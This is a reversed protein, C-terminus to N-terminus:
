RIRRFEIKFHNPLNNRLNRVQITYKGSQNIAVNNEIDPNSTGSESTLYSNNYNLTWDVDGDDFSCYIDYVGQTLQIPTELSISNAVFEGEIINNNVRINSTTNSNTSTRLFELKFSNNNGSINHVEIRYTQSKSIHFLEKDPNSIGSESAAISNGDFLIWDVDGSDFSLVSEYTGAELYINGKLRNNRNTLRGTVVNGSIYLPDRPQVSSGIGEFVIRYNNSNNRVNNVELTYNGTNPINVNEEVDPNDTGFEYAVSNNGQKLTWDVDGSDFYCTVRYQGANLYVTHTRTSNNNDLQGSVSTGATTNPILNQVGKKFEVVFKNTNSSINTVVIKYYGNKSILVQEIDPNDVGSENAFLRSGDYLAWDVDGSDFACSVTYTGAALHISGEAQSGGIALIGTFRNGIVSSKNNILTTGTKIFQISYRTADRLRRVELTYTATQPINVNEEIDPNDVGYENAIAQNNRSISWDVDGKDFSTVVRYTGAKLSIQHVRKVVSTTFTGKYTGSVGSDTPNVVSSDTKFEVRFNTAISMLNRVVLRYTGTRNIRVQEMDPNDVGSERAIEQQGDFLVWDVDGSDFYCYATYNGAALHIDASAESGQTNLRGSMTNNSTTVETDVVESDGTRFQVRYSTSVARLNRVELRYSGVRPPRVNNEIDPNDVGSENAVVSTADYLTWDVDGTDFFLYVSYPQNNLQITHNVTQNPQLIGVVEQARASGSLYLVAVLTVLTAIITKTLNM